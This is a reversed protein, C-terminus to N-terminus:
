SVEKRCKPTKSCPQVICNTVGQSGHGDQPSAAQSSPKRPVSSPQVLLSEGALGAAGFDHGAIRSFLCDYDGWILPEVLNGDQGNSFVTGFTSDDHIHTQDGEGNEPM